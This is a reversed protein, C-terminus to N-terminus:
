RRISHALVAIQATEEVLEALYTAAEINKGLAVSGHKRLIFSNMDPHEDFAKLIVPFFTSPVVYNEADFVPCFGKLKIESHYTAFELKQHDDAWANAYPSHVHMVAGLDPLKKYLAGHLLSEKSPKREGEIVNGDFDTVVLSELETVEFSVNTGKVIMYDTGPVRASMNGGDSMEYRLAYMKKATRILGNVIEPHESRISM